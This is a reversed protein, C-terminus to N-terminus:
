SDRVFGILVSLWIPSSLILAAFFSAKMTSFFAEHVKYFYLKYGLTKLPETLFQLIPKSFSFLIIFFILIVLSSFILRKRLDQAHEIFTLKNPDKEKIKKNIKILKKTM